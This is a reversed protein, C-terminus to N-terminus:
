LELNLQTKLMGLAPNKAIMQALKEKPTLIKTAELSHDVEVVLDISYNHLKTRLFNLLEGKVHELERKQIDNFVKKYILGEKIEPVPTTLTSFFEVDKARVHYAYNNWAKFFAEDTFEKKPLNKPDLELDPADPQLMKKISISGTKINGKSSREINQVLEESKPNLRERIPTETKQRIAAQAAFANPNSWLLPHPM